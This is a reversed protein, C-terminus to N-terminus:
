YLAVCNRQMQLNIEKLQRASEALDACIDNQLCLRARNQFVALSTILNQPYREILGLCDPHALGGRELYYERLEQVKGGPLDGAAVEPGGYVDNLYILRRFAKKMNCEYTEPQDTFIAAYVAADRTGGLSIIRLPNDTLQEWQSGSKRFFHAQQLTPFTVATVRGDDLARFQLPVSDGDHVAGSFDVVRVQFNGAPDAQGLETIREANIRFRSAADKETEGFFEEVFQGGGLFFYKTNESTVFLFDAVKYPLRYPLSWLSLRPAQIESPAFIPEIANQVRAERGKLGYETVGERCSFYLTYDVLGSIDLSNKTKESVGAGTFISEMIRLVDISLQQESAQKQRVVIGIFFLLIVTGAILIYIWNFTLEVQGKNKIMKIM